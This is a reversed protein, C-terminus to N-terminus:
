TKPFTKELSTKLLRVLAPSASMSGTAISRETLETVISCKGAERPTMKRKGDAKRLHPKAADSTQRTVDCSQLLHDDEREEVRLHKVVELDLRGPSVCM